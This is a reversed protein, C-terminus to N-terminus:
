NRDAGDLMIMVLFQERAAEKTAKNANAAVLKGPYIFGVTKSLVNAQALVREAYHTNSEKSGQTITFM